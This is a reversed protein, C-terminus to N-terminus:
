NRWHENRCCDPFICQWKIANTSIALVATRTSIFHWVVLMLV